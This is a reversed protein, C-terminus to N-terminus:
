RRRWWVVVGVLLVLLPLLGISSVQLFRAEGPGIVLRRAALVKREVSVIERGETLWSVVRLFLEGNYANMVHANTAFDSDGLVALRPIPAGGGPVPAESVLAGLVFPGRPESKADNVRKPGSSGPREIRSEGSSLALAERVMGPSAADPVSFATAGPLYFDAIQFANRTRPVRTKDEDPAVFSGPDVVTGEAVDLSWESLFGSLVHVTDPDVLVFLRGDRALYDRIADLEDTALPKRPSAVVLASADRPIEPVFAPDLSEVQFLNDGLIRGLIGYEGSIGHEGHGALFYIKKQRAGSVELIAGTFAHEAEHLVEPGLIKKRGRSGAFVVTGVAAELGEVGYRRAQDPSIEPDFSRVTLLPAHIRYEDLLNVAYRGVGAPTGSPFFCVAEVPSDLGGLVRKTQTTLTFQALGTADFRRYHMASIGNVLILIGALLSIRVGVGLGFRGRTGALADRISRFDLVVASVLLVLGVGLLGFVPLGPGPVILASVWGAFLCALGLM